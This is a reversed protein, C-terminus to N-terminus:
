ALITQVKEIFEKPNDAHVWHSANKIEIIKNQPFYQDCAGWNDQNIYNSLEGKLFYTQKTYQKDVTPFDMLIRYHTILSEFNCKWIFHGNEDRTLNKMIFQRVGFDPIRPELFKDIDERNQTARLPAEAMAFLITEHGGNYFAPAVDIVILKEILNPHLLALLMVVKGGMSHGMFSAKFIQHQACFEVMDQALLEYNMDDTHPSRGHNRQDIIYVQHQQSLQKAITQWNDLSGLLGHLIIVTSGKDGFKKYNLQM